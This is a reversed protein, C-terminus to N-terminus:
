PEDATTITDGTVWELMVFRLDPPLDNIRRLRGELEGVKEREAKLADMLEKVLVSSAPYPSKMARPADKLRAYEIEALREDSMREIM